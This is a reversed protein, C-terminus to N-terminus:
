HRKCNYFVTTTSIYTVYNQVMFLNVKVETLMNSNCIYGPCDHSLLKDIVDIMVGRLIGKHTYTFGLQLSVYYGCVSVYIGTVMTFIICFTVLVDACHVFALM